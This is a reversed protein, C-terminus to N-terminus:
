SGVKARPNKRPHRRLAEPGILGKREDLLMAGRDRETVARAAHEIVKALVERAATDGDPLHLNRYSVDFSRTRTLAPRDDTRRTLVLDVRAEPGVAFRYTCRRRDLLVEVLRAGLPEAVGDVLALWEPHHAPGREPGHPDDSGYALGDEPEEWPRTRPTPTLLEAEWGLKHIYPHTLGLCAESHECKAEWLCAFKPYVDYFDEAIVVDPQTNDMCDGHEGLLCRPVYKVACPIGHHAARDLAARLAPGLEAMPVLLGREDDFDEMPLYNWFEMRAPSLASVREVIESLVDVNLTTLVTNTMLTVGLSRLNELGRWAEDFSGERQSIYDQTEPDPGHLSVFFEDIGEDVLRKAYGMDALLRGNTQLRIHEFGGHERAYRLYDFLSKELTIEGGTFTVRRYRPARGNDDVARKFKEFPVGRFLNMGEQVICFRCASHCHFDVTVTLDEFRTPEFRGKYSQM